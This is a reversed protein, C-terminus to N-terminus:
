VSIDQGDDYKLTGSSGPQSNDAAEGESGIHSSTADTAAETNYPGKKRHKQHRYYYAAFAGLGLVLLIVVLSVAISINRIKIQKVRPEWYNLEDDQCRLGRYGTVCRCVYEEIQRLYRCEGGHLCYGNYSSPCEGIRSTSTTTSFESCGVATGPLGNSRTCTYNGETNTCLANEGCEHIGLSCEDIDFCHLGNGSYGERCECIYGGEINVCETQHSNCTAIYLSCEDIDNCSKGNGTFGELCQCRPGGESPVCHANLDCQIDNCGSEDSLMIEAVLGNRIRSDERWGKESFNSSSPGGFSSEYKATENTTDKEKRPQSSDDSIGPKALPHVVVLSSPRQMSGRLRVWSQSKRKHMRIISPQVWDTLWIYDEFVAIDFPHGVENQSLTQRNSGDLHSSEIASRKSDCWYLKDTVFEVTIGSPWVLDTNVLVMRDSGDLNSSEIKPNTGIDTWFVRKALPHVCIGRPQHLNKHIIKERNKGNLDSREICPQGRDTWYLKRNIADTSIGEPMDLGESIIMERGTGDVNVSEIRKLASHAFYIRNDGPDYDMAFVRGMQSEVITDYGLGDFNIRRIDFVNAFILFPRSGSALCHKKDHLLNYGPFCDCEWSGPRLTRCIQSCGGNDPSTCGTCTKGDGTLVSGEPCYCLLGRVTLVCGHSCSMANKACPINDHCTKSDPLLVFGKPCSCYYSGPINECGLTCGHNWLVCENIDECHEGDKSLVYGEKCSCQQSEANMQCVDACFEEGGMCDENGSSQANLPQVVKIDSIQLVSPKLFIKVIDKGTYKNIRQISSNRESYYIHDSFISLGFVRQRSSPGLYKVVTASDGNYTCSGISSDGNESTYLIWYIRKDSLDLTLGMIKGRLEIVSTLNKGDLHAKEIASLTSDSSWFLLGQVPDVAIFGPYFLGRLLIQSRKGNMDTREITGKQQNTWFILKHKWDLAFGQVGKGAGRMTQRKTGNLYMRQLFGRNTDFRYLREEQHDFDLRVSSGANAVIKRHNTGDSDIRFIDNGHTFILFPVPVNCALQENGMQHSQQCDWQQMEQTSLLGIICIFPWLLTLTLFM